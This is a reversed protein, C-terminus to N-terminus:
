YLGILEIEGSLLLCSQSLLHFLFFLLICFGFRTPGNHGSVTEQLAFLIILLLLLILSLIVPKCRSVLTRTRSLLTQDKDKHSFDKNVDSSWM